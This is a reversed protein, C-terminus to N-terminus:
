GLSIIEPALSKFDATGSGSEEAKRIHPLDNLDKELLETAAFADAAVPDTSAIVTNTQKLDTTSGGTPGNSMM